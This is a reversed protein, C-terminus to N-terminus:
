PCIPSAKADSPSSPRPLSRYAGTLQLCASVRLNGFPPVRRPYHGTMVPQIFYASHPSRLSSFCRLVELFLFFFRNGSYRRAFRFCGFGDVHELRSRTTDTPNRPRVPDTHLRTPSDFVLKNASRDPLTSWLPHCDQLRFCAPERPFSEWTGRSVLFGTPIRSSWRGLSFVKQRGITCLYRSPFTFLVGSPSHFSGSVM